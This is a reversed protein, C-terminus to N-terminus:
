TLALIIRHATLSDNRIFNLWMRAQSTIGALGFVRKGFPLRKDICTPTRRKEHKRKSWYSLVRSMQFRCAWWKMVFSKWNFSIKCNLEVLYDLLRFYEELPRSVLIYMGLKKSVSALFREGRWITIINRGFGKRRYFYM